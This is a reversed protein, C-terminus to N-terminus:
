VIGLILKEMDRARQLVAKSNEKPMDQVFSQLDMLLKEHKTHTSLRKNAGIGRLVSAAEAPRGLALCAKGKLIQCDLVKASDPGYLSELAQQLTKSENILPNYQKQAYLAQCLLAQMDCIHTFYEPSISLVCKFIPM